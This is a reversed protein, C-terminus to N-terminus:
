RGRGVQGVAAVVADVDIVPKTAPGPVLTSGVHGLGLATGAVAAWPGRLGGRGLRAM